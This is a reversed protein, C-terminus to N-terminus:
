QGAEARVAAVIAPLVELVDAGVSIHALDDARTPGANLILLPAGSNAAARALRFASYTQLSSGVVLLADASDVAAAAEEVLAPPINGGFFTVSPKLVGRAGRAACAECAPVRFSACEAESLESDGDARMEVPLATSAARAAIWEANTAALREQLEARSSHAGCDLCEVEGIRGHLDIVSRQGAATHLGDVNQTVVCALKGLTELEVLARHAANPEARSFYRWGIFSRAWYRQRANESRVFEAHQIPVHGRSYSGNPSRYDPIGSHTSLGAGSLVVLRRSALVHACLAANQEVTVSPM